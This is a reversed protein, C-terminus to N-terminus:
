GQLLSMLLLESSDSGSLCDRLVHQVDPVLSSMSHRDGMALVPTALSSPPARQGERGRGRLLTSFFNKQLLTEDVKGWEEVREM